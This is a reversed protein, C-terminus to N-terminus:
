RSKLLLPKSWYAWDYANNRNPGPNTVFYISVIKGGFEALDVLHDHWKRDEINRKPNVYKSFVTHTGREDQILIEFLVGDTEKVWADPHLAVGFSLKSHPLISVNSYILFSDVIHSDWPAIPIQRIAVRGKGNITIEELVALYMSQNLNKIEGQTGDELRYRQYAQDLNEVFSYEISYGEANYKSYITYPGISKVFFYREPVCRMIEDPPFRSMLIVYEFAGSKVLDLIKQYDQDTIDPMPSKYSSAWRVGPALHGSLWYLEAEWGHILIKGNATHSKIYNVLEQQEDWNRSFTYTWYEGFLNVNTNPFQIPQFYIVPIFSVLLTVIFFICIANKEPNLLYKRLSKLEIGMSISVISVGSLLSMPPILHSLHRGFHPPPIAIFLFLITWAIVFVDYHRFRLFCLIFGIFSFLWLPLAEAIILFKVAFYVDPQSNYEPGLFRLITSQILGALAGHSWFYLAGVLIPLFVGTALFSIDISLNRTFFKKAFYQGFTDYKTYALMVLLLIIGVAQYQLILSSVSMLFGSVLLMSKRNNRLYLTCTYVSAIVLPTSLSSPIALHTEFIPADMFLGYFFASVLGVREGYWNKAILYLIIISVAYLANNIMRIAVIDNGFIQSPIMYMLYAVPPNVAAMPDSYPLLGRSWVMAIYGLAGEDRVVPTKIWLMRISLSLLVILVLIAKTISIRYTTGTM